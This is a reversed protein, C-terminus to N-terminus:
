KVSELYLLYTDKFSTYKRRTLYAEKCVNGYKLLIKDKFVTNVYRMNIIYSRHTSCFCPLALAERWYDMNNTSRLIADTTHILVKRDVAEVCVIEEARRVVIGEATVIPYERTDMSYQYVADKLNRFLRKKDIPKSLYRFVQFRMAEDLYDPYSTVIFIKIHPNHEKLKAGVQIWSTGPMEVDLFAIDAFRESALLADGSSYSACEPKAVGLESFFELVYERLQDLIECNDDCFLIRLYIM